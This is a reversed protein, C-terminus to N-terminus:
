IIFFKNFLTQVCVPRQMEAQFMCSVNYVKPMHDINKYVDYDRDDDEDFNDGVDDDDGGGNYYVVVKSNGVSMVLFM